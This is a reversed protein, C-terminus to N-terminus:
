CLLLAPKYIDAILYIKDYNRVDISFENNPNSKLFRRAQRMFSYISERLKSSYNAEFTPNSLKVSLMGEKMKLNLGLFLDERLQEVRRLKGTKVIESLSVRVLLCSLNESEDLCWVELQFDEVIAFDTIELSKTKFFDLSKALPVLSDGIKYFLGIKNLTKGSNKWELFKEGEDIAIDLLEDLSHKGSDGVSNIFGFLEAFESELEECTEFEDDFNFTNIEPNVYCFCQKQNTFQNPFQVKYSYDLSKQLEANALFIARLYSVIFKALKNQFAILPLNEIIQINM